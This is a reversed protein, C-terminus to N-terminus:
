HTEYWNDGVKAEGDLPCRFGFYEGAKRIAGVAMVKYEDVLERHIKNAQNAFNRKM